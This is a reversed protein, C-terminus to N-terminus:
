RRESAAWRRAHAVAFALAIVHLKSEAYAQAPEWARKTWDIDGLSGEGGRHLGRQRPVGVSRSARDAGDARLPSPHKSRPHLETPFKPRAGAKHLPRQIGGSKHLPCRPPDLMGAGGARRHDLICKEDPVLASASM